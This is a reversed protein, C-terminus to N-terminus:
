LVEYTIFIGEGAHLLLSLTDTRVSKKEGGRYVSVSTEKGFTLTQETIFTETTEGFNVLM